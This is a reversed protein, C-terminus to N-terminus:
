RSLCTSRRLQKRSRPSLLTRKSKPQPGQHLGHTKKYEELIEEANDLNSAPEWTDDNSGCGKWRILYRYSRNFPKHTIIAEVEYQNEGEIVDPPPRLHNPRHEQTEHYPTLFATNQVPHINNGPPLQLKYANKSIVGIIPYPGERKPALKRSEYPIRLHRSDLWVM